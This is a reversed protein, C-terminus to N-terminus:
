RLRVDRPWALSTGVRYGDGLAAIHSAQRDSGSAAVAAELAELAVLRTAGAFIGVMATAVVRGLGHGRAIAGADVALLRAAHPAHGCPAGPANVLLLADSSLSVSTVEALLAPDLVLAASAPGGAVGTTSVCVCAAHGGLAARLVDRGLRAGEADRGYLRIRHPPRSPAHAHGDDVVRRVTFRRARTRFGACAEIKQRMRVMTLRLPDQLRRLAM